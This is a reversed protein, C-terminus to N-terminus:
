LKKRYIVADCVCRGGCAICHYNENRYWLMHREYLREFGFRLMTNEIPVNGSHVWASTFLAGYGLARAKEIGVAALANMVGHGEYQPFVAGSKYILPQADGAAALVDERPMDMKEMIEEVSSPVMVAFGAFGGGLLAQQFLPPHLMWRDFVTRDIYGAGYRADCLSQVAPYRDPTMDRVDPAPHSQEM